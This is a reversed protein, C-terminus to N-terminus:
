VRSDYTKDGNLKENETQEDILYEQNAIERRCIAITAAAMSFYIYTMKDYYSVMGFGMVFFSAMVAFMLTVATDGTAVSLVYLNKILYFYIAYYILFGVIGVCALLEIFNNHLYTSRGLYEQTILYSNSIGVGTYPRKKFSEWGIEIMTFRAEASGDIEGSEGGFMTSIRSFVGQFIPMTSMWNLIILLAFVAVLLKAFAALSINERYKMLLLLGIGLAIMAISKRSGTGLAVLLAFIMFVYCYKKEKFYAQYFAVITTISLYIGISNVNAIGGGLREGLLMLRIYEIVGYYEVVVFACILGSIMLGCIFSEINEYASIYSYFIISMILLQVLTIIAELSKGVDISWSLAVFCFLIFSAFLIIFTDVRFNKGKFIMYATCGGFALVFIGQSIVNLSQYTTFLLVSAMYMTILVLILKSGKSETPEEIYRRLYM